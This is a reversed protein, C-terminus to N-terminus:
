RRARNAQSEARSRCPATAPPRACAPAPTVRQPAGAGDGLLHGLIEVERGRPIRQPLQLLRHGRIPQLRASPCARPNQLEVEVDGLQAVPDPAHLRRAPPVEVGRGPPEGLGLRRRERGRQRKRQAGVGGVAGVPHAAALVQNEPPHAALRDLHRRGLLLRQDLRAVRDLPRRAHIRQEIGQARRDLRQRGGCGSRRSGPMASPWAAPLGRGHGSCSAAAHWSQGRAGRKGGHEGSSGAAARARGARSRQRM